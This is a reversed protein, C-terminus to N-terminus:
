FVFFCGWKIRVKYVLVFLYLFFISAAIISISISVKAFNYGFDTAWISYFPDKLQVGRECLDFVFLFLFLCLVLSLNKWYALLGHRQGHSDDDNILHEGAFVLWFAMLAAYFLGQKIDNFLTLWPMDFTLTLYELPLNLLTLASGLMLLMKELLTATRPLLKLRRWMWWMEAIILPFFITKLSVWVKTFGGNQHIAILNLDILKGLEENVNVNRGNDDYMSPIRLNVLYYDHHLSGLDFLPIPSCDYLYGERKKDEDIECDLNRHVFSSAYETWKNEPDGKNRYGLRAHILIHVRPDHDNGAEYEIDASLMTMLEQQWRSFAIKVNNRPLPIQFAFVINEATLKMDAAEPDDLKDIKRCAGEKGRPYFWADEDKGGSFDICKSALVSMSSNPTPSVLAGILFCSFLCASLGALVYGLKRTSMNEIISGAM